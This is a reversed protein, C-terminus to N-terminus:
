WSVMIGYNQYKPGDGYDDSLGAPVYPAGDTMFVARYGLGILASIYRKEIPTPELHNWVEVSDLFIFVNRKGSKAADEVKKSVASELWASVEAGSEDYLRKAENADIM